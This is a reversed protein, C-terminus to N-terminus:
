FIGIWFGGSNEHLIKEAEEESYGNSRLLKRIRGAVEEHKYVPPKDSSIYHLSMDDTAACINDVSGLLDRIHNIHKLYYQEGSHLAVAPKVFGSYEVAGITGDFEEAIIKIQEDTLNRPVDCIARANSHSAHVIPKLGEKKLKRCEEIIGYFTKDNAHSLDIAINTQVLKQVLERGADTLGADAPAKAGGGFKNQNNWVINTSRLGLEYLEDIDDMSKLYDLGEIGSIYNIGQPLLENEQILKNVLRLDEVIDIDGISEVGFDRKMKSFEAYYLNFIGGTINDKRFIKKCYDKVKKLNKQHNYILIYMLLDFHCDFM